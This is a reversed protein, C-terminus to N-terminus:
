FSSSVQNSVPCAAHGTASASRRRARATRTRLASAFASRARFCVELDYVVEYNEYSNIVQSPVEPGLVCRLTMFLKIIKM